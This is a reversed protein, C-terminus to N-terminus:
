FGHDHSSPPQLWVAQLYVQPGHDRSSPPQSRALNSSYKSATSPCCAPDQSQIWCNTLECGHSLSLTVIGNLEWPSGASPLRDHLSARRFSFSWEPTLEYDILIFPVCVIKPLHQVSHISYKTYATSPTNQLLHISYKNDVWPWPM